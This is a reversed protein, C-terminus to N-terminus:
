VVSKRDLMVMSSRYCKNAYCKYVEDFYKRTRSDYIRQRLDDFSFNLVDM